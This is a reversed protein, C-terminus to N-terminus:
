FELSNPAGMKFEFVWVLNSNLDLFFFFFISFPFLSSPRMAWGAWGRGGQVPACVRGV